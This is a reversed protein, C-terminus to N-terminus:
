NWVISSKSSLTFFALISIATLVLKKVSGVLATRLKFTFNQKFTGNVGTKIVYCTTSEQTKIYAPTSKLTLDCLALCASQDRFRCARLLLQTGQVKM